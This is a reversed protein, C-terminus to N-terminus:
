YLIKFHQSLGIDQINQSIKHHLDATAFILQAYVRTLLAVDHSM